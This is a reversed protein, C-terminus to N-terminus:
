VCNGYCTQNSGLNKRLITGMGIVSRQGISIGDKLIAGSGVFCGEDVSVSGNLIAGTSIHTHDRVRVDHELLAKSNIICNSGVQVGANLIAGHMIISGAGILASPSVYATPSKVTALEFGAQTIKNKLKIRLEPSHIQGVAVLAYKAESRLGSINMESAIVRYGSIENGVEIDRGVLGVIQFSGEQEIVDICSRAHGGAGILIIKKKKM